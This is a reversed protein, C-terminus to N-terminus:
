SLPRHQGNILPEHGPTPASAEKPSLAPEPASPPAPESAPAPPSESVQPATEDARPAGQPLAPAPDAAGSAEAMAATSAETAPLRPPSPAEAQRAAEEITNRIENLPNNRRLEALERQLDEGGAERVSEDFQRRFDDAARRLKGMMRGFTRLMGPLEKPGVVIIAVILVLFLESWAIEFM